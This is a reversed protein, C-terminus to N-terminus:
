TERRWYVGTWDVEVLPEAIGHERRYDDVAQRCGAIAGYDDVILYGGVALKPYLADLAVITSEYMDGDLRAVALQEIPADALTDQFYGKLFRVQDDLLEYREFNARVEEESVALSSFTWHKDGQDAEYKGSPKPLGEFSDAVWVVRETDGYAALVARMFITAGGRWVGTEILDGPVGRKVVDTVCQRINELRKLGIMTEAEAPWDRGNARADADFPVRKYGIARNTRGVMQRYAFARWGTPPAEVPTWSDGFGYRTLCRKLLELYLEAGKDDHAVLSHM